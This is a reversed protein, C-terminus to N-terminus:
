LRSVVVSSDQPPTAPMEEKPNDASQQKILGRSPTQQSLSPPPFALSPPPRPSPIPSPSAQPQSTLAGGTAVIRQGRKGGPVVRILGEQAVSVVLEGKQTFFRGVCFGRSGSSRPSEIEYLLWEDARFPRHFWMCHDLSALVLKPNPSVIGHPLLATTLFSFDSAYALACRHLATDDGLHGRARMWVIQRPDHKGPEVLDVPSCFRMDVPALRPQRSARKRRACIPIRADFLYGQQLVEWSPIGEPSSCVAPMSAQHELGEEARQFSAHMSFINKGKQMAVVHRTAFSHGDRIREVRYVIPVKTDGAVLFYSHLSHVLLSPDVSRCASALAQGLLQGGFVNPYLKSAPHTVARTLDVELSELQLIEEVMSPGKNSTADEEEMLMWPLHIQRSLATAQEHRLLVCVVATISLVDARHPRQSPPLHVGPQGFFDGAQLVLTGRPSAYPSPADDRSSAMRSESSSSSSSSVVAAEGKWIIYLGEGAQGEHVLYDGPGYERVELAESVISLAVSPLDEFLPHSRLFHVVAEQTPQDPWQQMM